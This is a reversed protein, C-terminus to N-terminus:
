LEEKAALAGLPKEAHLRVFETLGELTLEVEPGAVVKRNSATVLLITPYGGYDLGEVENLSGDMKAITPASTSAAFRAGLKEYELELAKCHGCWPAYINLLVDRGAEYVIEDFTDAVVCRVAAAEEEEAAPPIPESRRLVNASGGIVAGMFAVLAAELAEGSVAGGVAEPAAYRTEPETATALGYFRLPAAAPDGGGLDVDFFDVLGDSEDLAADAFVVHARGRLAAAVGRLAAEHARFASDGGILVLQFPAAGDGILFGEFAEKFPIIQPLAHARVHEGIFKMASEVETPSYAWSTVDVREDYPKLLLLGGRGTGPPEYAAGGLASDMLARGYAGRERTHAFAVGSMDAERALSEYADLTADAADDAAAAPLLVLVGVSGDDGAAARAFRSVWASAAHATEIPESPRGVRRTVWSVFDESKRGGRYERPESSPRGAKAAQEEDCWFFTPYSEVGLEEALAAEAIADVKALRAAVGRAALVDAAKAYEPAVHRCHGCWPAFFQVLLRRHQSRGATFNSQGLMLVNEEIFQAPAWEPTSGDPAAERALITAAFFITAAATM